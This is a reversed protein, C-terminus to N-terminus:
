GCMNSLKDEVLNELHSKYLDWEVSAIIESIFGKILMARAEKEPIGRSLLYFLADENLEGSSAGHGCKVDDAYIWFAPKTNAEAESSLLLNKNEQYSDVKQSNKRIIISGQFATTSKDGLVGKFHERSNTYPQSHDITVHNDVHQNGNTIYLGNLICSANEGAVETKLNNRILKGGLDASVSKFQSTQRLLVQTTGIHYADKSHMQLRYHELHSNNGLSIESVANSLYETEEISCHTEMIIASSNKELMILTRPCTAIKEEWQSTLFIISIPKEVKTNPGIHILAGDRTFATNLATFAHDKWNALTGLTGRVAPANWAQSLPGITCGKIKVDESSLQPSYLGDLFVLRHFDHEDFGAQKLHKEAAYTLTPKSPIVFNTTAINKVDTYKWEENGKRETPFGLTEFQDM